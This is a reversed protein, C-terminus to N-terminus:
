LTTEFKQWALDLRRPSVPVPPKLTPAFLSVRYVEIQWRYTELAPNEPHAEWNLLYRDWYPNLLALKKLDGQPDYAMLM